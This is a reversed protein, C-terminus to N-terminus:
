LDCVRPEAAEDALQRKLLHISMKIGTLPTMLDHTADSVFQRLIRVREKELTLEMAQREAQKMDTVDQTVIMGAFPKGREDRVPVIHVQYDRGELSLSFGGEIDAFVKHLHPALLQYIESPLVDNLVANEVRQGKFLMQALGHLQGEVVLIHLKEDFLVIGTDPLNRALTRYLKEKRSLEEALARYHSESATLVRNLEVMPNFLNERLIARTFLVSSIVVFVMPMHLQNLLPVGLALLGIPAVLTGPFLSRGNQHRYHWILAASALFYGLTGAIGIWGARQLYYRSGAETMALDTYVRGIFLSLPAFVAVVITGLILVARVWWQSWLNLTHSVLVLILFGNAYASYSAISFFIQLGGSLRFLTIAAGWVVVTGMYAALLQNDRNTPAQWLVLFLMSLAAAAGLVGILISALGLISSDM